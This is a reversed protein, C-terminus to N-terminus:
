WNDIGRSLPVYVPSASALVGHIKTDLNYCFEKVVITNSIPPSLPVNM